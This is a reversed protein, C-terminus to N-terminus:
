WSVTGGVLVTVLELGIAGMEPYAEQMRVHLRSEALLSFPSHEFARRVGLGANIGFWSLDSTFVVGEINELRRGTDDYGGLGGVLYPRWPGRGLEYRAGVGYRWVHRDSSVGLYGAELLVVFSGFRTGFSAEVSPGTGGVVSDSAPTATATGGRLSFEGIRQAQATRTVLAGAILVGFLVARASV